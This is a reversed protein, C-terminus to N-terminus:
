NNVIIDEKGDEQWLRIYEVNMELDSTDGTGSYRQEPKGGWTAEPTIMHMDLLFYMYQNYEYKGDSYGDFAKKLDFVFYDIGDVLFIMETETWLFGYTHYDNVNKLDFTERSAKISFQNGDYNKNGNIQSTIDKNDYDFVKKSASDYTNKYFKHITPYITDGLYTWTEFIDVELTFIPDKYSTGDSYKILDSGSSRLWWAPWAGNKFPLKAYIEAYGRRYVMTSRTTLVGGMAYELKETKSGNYSKDSNSWDYCGAKLVLKGDNVYNYKMRDDVNSPVSIDSFWPVMCTTDWIKGPTIPRNDYYQPGYDITNSTFEDGWVYNYKKNNVTITDAHSELTSNNVITYDGSPHPEFPNIYVYDDGNSDDESPIDTVTSTISNDNTLEDEKDASNEVSSDNNGSLNDSTYDINEDYIISSSLQADDSNKCGVISALILVIM